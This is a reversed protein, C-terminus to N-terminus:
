AAPPVLTDPGSAADNEECSADVAQEVKRKLEEVIDLPNTHQTLEEIRAHEEPHLEIGLRAEIRALKRLIETSEREALLNVHLDLEARKDAAAQMRNQSILVFTALFIAELSVVMTLLGFPYEDFVEVGPVLGMNVLIWGGFWLVHLWVYLMSGSFATIADALRLQWGRRVQDLRQRELLQDINEGIPGPLTGPMSGSAESVGTDSVADDVPVYSGTLRDVSM